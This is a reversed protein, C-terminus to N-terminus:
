VLLRLLLLALAGVFLSAVALLLTVVLLIGFALAGILLDFCVFLLAVEKLKGTMTRVM